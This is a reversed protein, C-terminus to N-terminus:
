RLSLAYLNLPSEEDSTLRTLLILKNASSAPFVYPYEFFGTYVEQKNTADYDMLTIKGSEIHVLHGSTPLWLLKSSPIQSKSNPSATQPVEFIYFNRDEKIDLTYIKGPKIDREQPQSSAGPIKPLIGEAITASATATYLIKTKDPSWVLDKTTAELAKKLEEPLKTLQLTEKDKTDKQWQKIVISLHDTIDILQTRLTLQGPDLLLNEEAQGTKLTVLIERSDPSWQCKAKSFDRGRPASKVIQRPERSNLGFPGEGLDLIWLGAKITLEDNESFPVSYLIKSGDPSLLPNQVGTYTLPRLDPVAPFLYADAKTVIEKEIKLNKKWPLYGDKRIEVQYEGPVLSITNNTATTLKGDVLVSAGNPVSTTVLLGTPKLTKKALDLKFGRAYLILGTTAALISFLIFLFFQTRYRRM